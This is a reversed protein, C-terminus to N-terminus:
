VVGIDIWEEGAPNGTDKVSEADLLMKEINTQLERVLSALADQEKDQKDQEADLEFLHREVEQLIFAFRLPSLPREDTVGANYEERSLPLQFNDIADPYQAKM